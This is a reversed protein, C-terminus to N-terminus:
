ALPLLWCSFGSVYIGAESGDGQPLVLDNEWSADIHWRRGDSEIQQGQLAFAVQEAMTRAETPDTSHVEATYHVRSVLEGLVELDDMQDLTAVIFPYAWHQPARGYAVKGQIGPVLEVIKALLAEDRTM